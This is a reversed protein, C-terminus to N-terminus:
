LSQVGHSPRGMRRKVLLVSCTAPKKPLIQLVQRNGIGHGAPANGCQAGAGGAKQSHLVEQVPAAAGNPPSAALQIAGGAAAPPLRHVAEGGGASAALRIRQAAQQLREHLHPVM